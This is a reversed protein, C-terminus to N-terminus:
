LKLKKKEFIFKVSKKYNSKKKLSLDLVKASRFSM